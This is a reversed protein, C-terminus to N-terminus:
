AADESSGEAPAEDTVAEYKAKEEESLANYAEEEIM